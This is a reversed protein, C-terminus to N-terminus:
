YAASALAAREAMCVKSDPAPADARIRVLEARAADLDARFEASGHLAATTAAGALWGAEVASVSHAGCVARSEGYTRGRALIATARDPVLEALILAEMWGGAAHGSPYDGNGALHRTRAQCIPARTGIYPRPVRFYAKVPDVVGATSARDLLRATLPASQATLQMGLACGFHTFADSEVDATALGWRATGKLRRTQAFVARDAAHAPSGAAPPRPLIALGDPTLAPTLYGDSKGVAASEVARGGCRDGMRLPNCLTAAGAPLNVRYGGAFRPDPWLYDTSVYQAGSALAADRRDTSASRAEYTGSDARTRVIFGAAVARRIRAADALPDNLTLYAADPASEETNVFFVRGELTRRGGRYAAVTEPGEDLAFLVKGRADGLRPWSGALVAERLTAHAGRVDDPTILAHPPFIARVARDLADFAATDFPLATTGGPVHSPDSKTNFMLLIPAHDPHALSWRRVEGLCDALQTCSSLVDADQIHLVKFGPEALAARRAPDLTLGAARFAAPALFRGGAPDHYIDIEIQRAGADLQESLPRHAYDLEIAADPRVKAILAMVAAPIAQKYSNHTGVSLLDNLRLNRDMWARTCAEPGAEVVNPAGLNCRPAPAAGGLAAAPLLMASLAIARKRYNAM